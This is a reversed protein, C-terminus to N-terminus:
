ASVGVPNFDQFEFSSPASLTVAFVKGGDCAVLKPDVKIARRASM